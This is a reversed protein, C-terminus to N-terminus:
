EQSINYREINSISYANNKNIYNHKYCICENNHLIAYPKNDCLTFYYLKALSKEVQSLM